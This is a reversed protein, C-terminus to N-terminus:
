GARREAVGNRRRRAAGGRRDGCGVGDYGCEGAGAWARDHEGAVGTIERGKGLVCCARDRDGAPLWDCGGLETPLDRGVTQGVATVALSRWRRALARACTPRRSPGARPWCRSATRCSGPPQRSTRWWSASRSRTGPWWPWRTSPAAAAQRLHRGARRGACRDAPASRRGAGRGHDALRRRQAQQAGSRPITPRSRATPSIGPRPSSDRPAWRRASSCCSRSPVPAPAQRAKVWLRRAATGSTIKTPM